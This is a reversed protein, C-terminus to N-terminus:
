AFYCSPPMVKVSQTEAAEFHSQGGSVPKSGEAFVVSVSVTQAVVM